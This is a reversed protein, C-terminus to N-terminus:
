RPGRAVLRASEGFEVMAPVKGNVGQLWYTDPFREDQIWRTM